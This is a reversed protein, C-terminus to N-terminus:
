QLRENISEEIQKVCNWIRKRNMMSPNRYCRKLYQWDFGPGSAGSEEEELKRIQEDWWDREDKSAPGPGPWYWHELRAVKRTIFPQMFAARLDHSTCTVALFSPTGLHSTIQALIEIPLGGLSAAKCPRPNTRMDTSSDM